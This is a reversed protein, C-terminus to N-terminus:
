LSQPQAKNPKQVKTDRDAVEEKKLVSDHSHMYINSQFPIDFPLRRPELILYHEAYDLLLFVFGITVECLIVLVCRSHIIAKSDTHNLIISVM